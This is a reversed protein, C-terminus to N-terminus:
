RSSPVSAWASRARRGTAQRRAQEAIPPKNWQPWEHVLGRGLTSNQSLREQSLEWLSLSSLLCCTAQLLALSVMRCAGDASEPALLRPARCVQTIAYAANDAWALERRSAAVLSVAPNMHAGSIPGLMTILVFLIAGTAMTNALLAVAESGGALNEAMIGSGIVTAFLFLSGVGEALLLDSGDKM